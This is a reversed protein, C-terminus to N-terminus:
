DIKMKTYKSEKRCNKTPKFTMWLTRMTKIKKKKKRKTKRESM